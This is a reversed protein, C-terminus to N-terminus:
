DFGVRWIALRVSRSTDLAEPALWRELLPIGLLWERTAPSLWLLASLGAVAAVVIALVPLLLRPRTGATVTIGLFALAVLLGLQPGRSLSLTIAAVQLALVGLWAARALRARESLACYLTVPILLLLYTGLYLPNGLTGGPRAHSGGPDIMGTTFFD